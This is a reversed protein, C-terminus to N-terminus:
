GHIQELAHSLTDLGVGHARADLSEAVDLAALAPSADALEAIVALDFTTVRLVFNGRPSSTLAHGRTVPELAEPSLYGDVSNPDAVLGLRGQDPSVLERRVRSAASTHGTFRHVTARARCRSVFQQADIIRLSANLRSREDSRLWRARRHSLLAIAAWATHEEWPRGPWAARLRRHQEVSARDLLGRAVAVLEGDSILNQIQRESVGLARSADAVTVFDHSVM